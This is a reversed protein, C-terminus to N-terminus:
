RANPKMHGCSDTAYEEKTERQIRGCSAPVGEQIRQIGPSLWKSLMADLKQKDVPKTLYDDMGSALCKERAGRFANATVAIIPIQSREPPLVRIAATAQFGDMVPMQCDMLIVDYGNREVRELAEAGNTVVDATYGLRTVLNTLVMRNIPNDEAILLHGRIHADGLSTPLQVEIVKQGNIDLFLRLDKEDKFELDFEGSATATIQLALNEGRLLFVDISSFRRNPEKSNLVQGTLHILKRAPNRDVRLDIVFPKVEQLLQQSGSFDGRTTVLLPDHVNDFVLQATEACQRLGKWRQIGTFAPTGAQLDAWLAYTTPCDSAERGIARFKRRTVRSSHCEACEEALDRQMQATQDAPVAGQLFEQWLWSSFHIM